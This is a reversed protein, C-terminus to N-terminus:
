EKGEDQKKKADLQQQRLRLQKPTLYAFKTLDGGGGFHRTGSGRCTGCAMTGGNPGAGLPALHIVINSYLHEQFLM